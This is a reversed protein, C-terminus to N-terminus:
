TPRTRSGVGGGGAGSRELTMGPRERPQNAVEHGGHALLELHARVVSPVEVM